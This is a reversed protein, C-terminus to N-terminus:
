CVQSGKLTFAGPLQQLSVCGPGLEWGKPVHLLILVERGARCVGSVAKRLVAKGGPAPGSPSSPVGGHLVPAKSVGRGELKSKQKLKSPPALAQAGRSFVPNACSTQM